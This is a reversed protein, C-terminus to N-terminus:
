KNTLEGGIYTNNTLTGGSRVLFQVAIENDSMIDCALRGTWTSVGLLTPLTSNSGLHRMAGGAVEVNKLTGDGVVDGQTDVCRLFVNCPNGGQCRIRLNGIDASRPNPIAYAYGRTVIGSFSTRVSGAQTTRMGYAGQNQRLDVTFSSTITKEALAVGPAPVYYLTALTNTAQAASLEIELTATSGTITLMEAADYNGNPSGSTPEHDYFLVDGSAFNGMARVVFKDGTAAVFETTGDATRLMTTRGVMVQALIVAIRQGGPLGSVQVSQGPVVSLQTPDDTNIIAATTTAGQPPNTLQVGDTAPDADGLNVFSAGQAVATTGEDQNSMRPFGPFTGAQGPFLPAVTVMVNIRASTGDAADSGGLTEAVGVLRPLIFTLTTNTTVSASSTLRYTVRSSTSGDTAESVTINMANSTPTIVPKGPTSAFTGASLEYTVDAVRGAALNASSFPFMLVAATQNLDIEPDSGAPFIEKAYRVGGPNSTGATTISLTTNTQAWSPVVFAATMVAAGIISFLKRSM